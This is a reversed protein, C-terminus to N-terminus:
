GEGLGCRRVLVGRHKATPECRLCHMQTLFLTASFAFRCVSVTVTQAKVMSDWMLFLFIKPLLSCLM